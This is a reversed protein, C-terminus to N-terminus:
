SMPLHNKQLYSLLNGQSALLRYTAYIKRTQETLLAIEAQFLENRQDLLDLISRQGLKFQKYSAKLVKSAMKVHNELAPLRSHAVQLQIYASRVEKIVQRKYAKMLETANDLEYNARDWRALSGAGNFLNYKLNVMGMTDNNKGRTGDVDENWSSSLNVHIKPMFESEVQETLAVKEDIRHVSAQLAPNNIIATAILSDVDEQVLEDPIVPLTMGEPPLENVSEQYQATATDLEGQFRILRANALAIRANVQALNAKNGYGTQARKKIRQGLIKHNELNKKALSVFRKSRFVDIYSAAAQLSTEQQQAGLVATAAKLNAKAVSVRSSTEWGDFVLQRLSIKAESRLLTDDNRNVMDSDEFGIGSELDVSPLYGAFQSDVEYESSLKKAETAKVSPHTKVARQVVASLSPGLVLEPQVPPVVEPEPVLAVVDVPKPPVKQSSAEKSSAVGNSQSSQDSAKLEVPKETDASDDNDFGLISLFSNDASTIKEHESIANASKVVEPTTESVVAQQGSFGLAALWSESFQDAVPEKNTEQKVLHPPKEQQELQEYFVNKQNESSSTLTSCSTLFLLVLTALISQKMMVKLKFNFELFLLWGYV